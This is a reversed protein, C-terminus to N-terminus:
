VVKLELECGACTGPEAMLAEETAELESCPDGIMDGPVFTKVVFEDIWAEGSGM